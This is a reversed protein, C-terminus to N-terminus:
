VSHAPSSEDMIVVIEVKRTTGKRLAIERYAIAGALNAYNHNEAPPYSGGVIPKRYVVCRFPYSPIRSM